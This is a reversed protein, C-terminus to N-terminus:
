SRHEQIFQILQPLVDTAQALYRGKKDFVEAYKTHLDYHVPKSTSSPALTLNLAAQAITKAQLPQTVFNMLTINKERLKQIDSWLNALNYFQFSSEPHTFELMHQHLLDFIFNKKLGEGFLAPLRIITVKPFIEKLAQELQLRHLGYPQLLTEDIQTKEDVDTIVPYVDVTSILICETATVQKLQAILLDISAKDSAPDQNAKWKVGPAAACAILDYTKGAIEASNKSNYLDTFSFQRALTSGVFGTYGILATRM